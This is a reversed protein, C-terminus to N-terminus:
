IEIIGGITKSSKRTPLITSGGAIIVRDGKEVYGDKELKELGIELLDNITKQEPLLIPFVNWILALQNYTEENSTVAFVPCKIGLGSLYRATNGTNTYAVVAKANIKKAMRCVTYNVNYELDDTEVKQYKNNFREWYKIEQEISKSINVMTKVCEVPYEGMACEGSLMIAGTRDYVANAVDSVEARTPRPSHTMSELMQTATIVAKGKRNCMKIIDKQAIPVKHYPIEVGLDGRGIMIGASNDIIEEINDLGEQNEIKCIIKIDKGGNEDLVKRVALVDEKNRVFSAAVYDFKAKAGDILDQIDKDKLAPLNLHIGPINVSKRNGLKGGNIVECVVDNGKIEIVKLEILGDDLLISTGKEIDEYLKKYTVSTKTNDGTIDENVLTFTNGKELIVPANDLMGTRVEPGQMDLLLAVPKEVKKKAEFFKMVKDKQEPYSGHSFNIRVVDMGAEMLEVLKDESAPGITCVIKTKRLYNNM